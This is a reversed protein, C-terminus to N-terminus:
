PTITWKGTQSVLNFIGAENCEFQLRSGTVDSEIIAGLNLVLEGFFIGTSGDLLIKLAFSQRVYIAFKMGPTPSPVTLTVNAATSNNWFLKNNDVSWDLTRDATEDSLTFDLAIPQVSLVGAGNSYLAGAADAMPLVYNIDAGAAPGQFTVSNNGDATKFYLPTAVGMTPDLLVASTFYTLDSFVQPAIWTNPNGMNLALDPYQRTGNVGISGDTSTVQNVGGGGDVRWRSTTSDYALRCKAGPMIAFGSVDNNPAIFRNAATSNTSQHTLIILFTSINWFEIIRGSSGGSLGTINVNTSVDQRIIAATSLGTPNYNDQATGFSTPSIIGTFAFSTSAKLVTFAGTNALFLDGSAAVDVAVNSGNGVFLHASTLPLVPAGMIEPGGVIDSSTSDFDKLAQYVRYLIAVPYSVPTSAFVYNGSADFTTAVVNGLSDLASTYTPRGGSIQSVVADVTGGFDDLIVTSNTPLTVTGSTGAGISVFRTTRIRKSELNSIQGSNSVYIFM